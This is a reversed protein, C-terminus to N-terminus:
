GLPKSRPAKTVAEFVPKLGRTTKIAEFDLGKDRGKSVAVGFKYLALYANKLHKNSLPVRADLQILANSAETSVLSLVQMETDILQRRDVGLKRATTIALSMRSFKGLADAYRGASLDPCAQQFYKLAQALAPRAEDPAEELVTSLREGIYEAQQDISPVGPQFIAPDWFHLWFQGRLVPVKVMETTTLTAKVPHGDVLVVVTESHPVGVTTMEWWICWPPPPAGPPFPPRHGHPRPLSPHRWNPQYCCFEYVAHPVANKPDTDLGTTQFSKGFTRRGFVYHWAAWDWGADGPEPMGPFWHVDTNPDDNVRAIFGRDDILNPPAGEPILTSSALGEAFPLWNRDDQADRKDFVWIRVSGAPTQFEFSNWDSPDDVQFQHLPNRPDNSGIIDHTVFVTTGDYQTRAGSTVSTAVWNLKSEFYYFGSRTAGGFFYTDPLRLAKAWEGKNTARGDMVPDQDTFPVNALNFPPKTPNPFTSNGVTPM